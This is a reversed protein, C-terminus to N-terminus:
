SYYVLLGKGADETRKLFEKLDEFYSLLYGFCEEDPEDWVNPYIDNKQFAARDCKLKLAETTISGLMTAIAAVEDRSYARVPGYGM